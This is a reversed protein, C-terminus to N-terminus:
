AFFELLLRNFPEPTDLNPLHGAGPIVELRSGDIAEHLATAAEVPTAVDLESAVILTPCVISALEDTQDSSDRLLGCCGVYGVPDTALFTENARAFGDPDRQAYEPVFFREMAGARIAEMGGEEVAAIRADWLERSGIRSSTNSLILRTVSHPANTALWIALFGGISIGAVDFRNVGASRIVQLLDQGLDDLLYPGPHATSRGHGPLDITIVRRRDSLLGVQEDWMTSDMGISHLLVLVEGEGGSDTVALSGTRGPIM